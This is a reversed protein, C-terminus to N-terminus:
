LALYIRQQFDQKKEYADKIAYMAGDDTM